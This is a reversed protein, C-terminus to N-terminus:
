YEVIITGPAGAGGNFGGSGGAGGAGVAYAIVNGPEVDLVARFYAGAGGGGAGDAGAVSGGGGGSGFCSGDSGVQNSQGGRAGGGYFSAGGTGGFSSVPDGPMGDGGACNFNAGSSTGGTGGRSTSNYAIGGTGGTATIAGFTTSGGTGGNNSGGGGGGGGAVGEARIRYVGDPVTFNGSGTLVQIAGVGNLWPSGADRKAFDAIETDTYANANSVFSIAKDTNLAGEAIAPDIESFAPLVSGADLQAETFRINNGAIAGVAGSVIVIIGNSCNGIDAVTLSISTWTSDAVSNASGTSIATYASVDDRSNPTAVTITFNKASGIDHYVKCRFTVQENIFRCAEGSIVQFMADATAAANNTTVGSLHLYAGSQSDTSYGIAQTGATVNSVRARVGVAQGEVFSATLSPASIVLGTSDLNKASCGGNIISNKGADLASVSSELADLRTDVSSDASFVADSTWKVAGSGGAGGIADYAVAKYQTGAAMHFDPLLGYADADIYSGLSVTLEPDSYVALPTSTGAAYFAVSGNALVNNQLDHLINNNIPNVWRSTM